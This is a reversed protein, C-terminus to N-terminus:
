TSSSSEAAATATKAAARKARIRITERAFRKRKSADKKEQSAIEQFFLAVDERTMKAATVEPLAEM